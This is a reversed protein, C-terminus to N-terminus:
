VQMDAETVFSSYSRNRAAQWAFPIEICLAMFRKAACYAVSWSSAVLSADAECAYTAKKRLGAAVIAAAMAEALHPWRRRSPTQKGKRKRPFPRASKM